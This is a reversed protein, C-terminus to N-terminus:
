HVREGWDMNQITKDFLDVIDDAYAEIAGRPDVDTIVRDIEAFHHAPFDDNLYRVISVMIFTALRAEHGDTEEIEALAGDDSLIRAVYLYKPNRVHAELEKRTM